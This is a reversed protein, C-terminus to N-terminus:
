SVHALILALDQKLAENELYGVNGLIARLAFRWRQAQQVDNEEIIELLAQGRSKQEGRFNEFALSHFMADCDAEHKQNLLMLALLAVKFEDEIEVEAIDPDNEEYFACEKEFANMIKWALFQLAAQYAEPGIAVISALFIGLTSTDDFYDYTTNENLTLLYYCCLTRALMEERTQAEYWRYLCLVEHLTTSMTDPIGKAAIIGKLEILNEAAKYGYDAESIAKLGAESIESSLFQLLKAADPKQKQIIKSPFLPTM